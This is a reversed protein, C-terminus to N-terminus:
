GDVIVTDTKQRYATALRHLVPPRRVLRAVAHDFEHCLVLYSERAIRGITRLDCSLRDEAACIRHDIGVGRAILSARAIHFRSTILALPPAIRRQELLSHAAVLNEVTNRSAMEAVIRASPIGLGILYERGVISEAREGGFPRGGLVIIPGAGSYAAARELRRRFEPSPRDSSVRAGLVLAGGTGRVAIPAIVATRAVRYVVLALLGGLSLALALNVMAFMALGDRGLMARISYFRRESEAPVRDPTHEAVMSKHCIQDCLVAIFIADIKVDAAGPTIRISEYSLAITATEKSVVYQNAELRV